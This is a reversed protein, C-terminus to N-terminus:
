AGCARSPTTREGHCGSGRAGTTPSHGVTLSPALRYTREQGLNQRVVPCDDLCGGDLRLPSYKARIAAVVCIRSIYKHRAAHRGARRIMAPKRHMACARPRTQVRGGARTSRFLPATSPRCRVTSRHARCRLTRFREGGRRQRDWRAPNVTRWIETRHGIRPGKCYGIPSEGLPMAPGFGPLAVHIALTHRTRIGWIHMKQM